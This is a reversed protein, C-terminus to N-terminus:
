WSETTSPQLMCHSRSIRILGVYWDVSRKTEYTAMMSILSLTRWYTSASMTAARDYYYLWAYWLPICSSSSSFSSFSQRIYQIYYVALCVSMKIYDTCLPSALGPATAGVHRQCQPLHASMLVKISGDRVSLAISM